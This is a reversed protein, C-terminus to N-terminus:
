FEVKIRWGTCYFAMSGFMCTAKLCSNQAISNRLSATLVKTKPLQLKVWFQVSGTYCTGFTTQTVFASFKHCCFYFHNALNKKEGSKFSVLCTGLLVSSLFLPCLYSPSHFIATAELSVRKQAKTHRFGWWSPIGVLIRNSWLHKDKM